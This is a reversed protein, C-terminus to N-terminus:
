ILDKQQYLGCDAFGLKRYYERTGVASIVNLRNYGVECAIDSAREILARGLGRHQASGGDADIRTAFGYVHVERIMAEGHGVPLEDGYREVADAHPLSLRLFGVIKGDPTVWQLFHETTAGTEYVVEDLALDDLGVAETGIERFRIECISAAEPAVHQEVLQRLNTKKNGVLIDDSSIDRIMRSIRMFEPTDKLNASLVEVLESESYPRWTGDEFHKVLPSSEVLACPYLKVEDPQFPEGTAFMRYGAIDLEPTAGLLNVMFHAHIKFGFLRCLEFAHEITEVTERRGNARLIGDDVSQVGLQIKTCGLERLERLAESTVTDPRTEFVLGVCRHAARENEEQLRSLSVASRQGTSGNLARFLESVFWIRYDQPYDLWTGGLVILEVKDTAHGMQELTRLRNAVQRYPDFENLAARQCAPEDALYSKPMTPDNPCYVCANACPWPKTIVTVTAVGSASRRPKMQLTKVFREHLGDDVQWSQWLEGGEARAALYFPLVRKKAFVRRGDHAEASRRRIVADLESPNLSEQGRLADLIDAVVKEM